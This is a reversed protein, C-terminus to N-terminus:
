VFLHRLQIGSGVLFTTGKSEALACSLRTLTDATSVTSKKAATGSVCNRKEGHRVLRITGLGCGM